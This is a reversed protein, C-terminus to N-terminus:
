LNKVWIIAGRPHKYSIPNEYKVPNKVIWKYPTKYKKLLDNFSFDEISIRHKNFNNNYDIMTLPQSDILDFQGVILNSGSEILYFTGRKKTNSGRIEWIKFGNLILESYKKKIILGDM